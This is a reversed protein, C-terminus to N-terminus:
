YAIMPVHETEVMADCFAILYFIRKFHIPDNSTLISLYENLYNSLIPNVEKLLNIAGAINEVGLKKLVEVNMDNNLGLEKLNILDDNKEKGMSTLMNELAREIDHNQDVKDIKAHLDAFLYTLDSKESTIADFFHNFHIAFITKLSRDFLETKGKKKGKKQADFLAMETDFARSVLYMPKYLVQGWELRSSEDTYNPNILHQSLVSIEVAYSRLYLRMDILENQFRQDLNLIIDEPTFIIKKIFSESPYARKTTDDKINEQNYYKIACALTYVLKQYMQGSFEMFRKEQDVRPSRRTNRETLAQFVLMVSSVFLSILAVILAIIGYLNFDDTKFNKSNDREVVVYNVNEAEGGADSTDLWNCSSLSLILSILVFLRKM